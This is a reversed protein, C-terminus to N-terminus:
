CERSYPTALKQKKLKHKVQTVSGWAGLMLLGLTMSPEPVSQTPTFTLGGINDIGNSSYPVVTDIFEGTTGDYRLISSTNPDSRSDDTFLVQGIYNQVYLNNDSGFALRAPFALGGTDAPIFTDIFAGTTGNYRLVNKSAHSSVYLNNDSGFTIGLPNSL